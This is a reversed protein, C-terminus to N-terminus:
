QIVQCAKDYYHQRDELGNTGGNVRKTVQEVTAGADCLANMNNKDWWFGASTFPYHQAVYECGEMVRLDAILQSFAEYNCRGTLQIVGAGKFKPGDGPYINGLDDRGELYSGDGLEQLWRLGGSEHAIQSLFHRMRAATNIQYRTLCQNLDKLQDSSIDGGFIADADQKTVGFESQM